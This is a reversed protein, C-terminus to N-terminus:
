KKSFYKLQGEFIKPVPSKDFNENNFFLVSVNLKREHTNHSEHTKTVTKYVNFAKCLIDLIAHAVSIRVTEQVHMVLIQNEMQVRASVRLELHFHVQNFFPWKHRIERCILKKILELKRSLTRTNHQLNINENKSKDTCKSITYRYFDKHGSQSFYYDFYIFHALHSNTINPKWIIPASM